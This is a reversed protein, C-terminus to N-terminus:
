KKQENKHQSRFQNPSSGNYEKFKRSFHYESEYGVQRAIVHIKENTTLLLELAKEMRLKTVYEWFGIGTQEKYLSTFYNKNMGIYEAVNQLSFSPDGYAIQTFLNARFVVSKGQKSFCNGLELFTNHIKNKIMNKLQEVNQTDNIEELKVNRMIAFYDQYDLKKLFLKIRVLLELSVNKLIWPAIKKNEAQQFLEDLFVFLEDHSNQLVAKAILRDLTQISMEAEMFSEETFDNETRLHIAEHQSYFKYNNSNVLRKEVKKQDLLIKMRDILQNLMLRSVPKLLFEQVEYRIAKQAYSFEGYASVIVIEVQKDAERICRACELGDMLPLQIDMFILDPQLNEYMQLAEVGDSATGVIEFGKENWNVLKEFLQYNVVEDDVILVRYM